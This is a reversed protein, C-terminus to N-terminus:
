KKKAVKMYRVGCANCLTKPGQPGARWVPTVKAGCSTCAIGNPNPNTVGAQNGSTGRKKIVGGCEADHLSAGLRTTTARRSRSPTSGKNLLSSEPLMEAIGINMVPQSTSFYVGEGQGRTENCGDSGESAELMEMTEKMRLTERMASSITNMSELTPSGFELEVFGYSNPYSAGRLNPSSLRSLTMTNIPSMITQMSHTSVLSRWSQTSGATSGAPSSSAEYSLSSSSPQYNLHYHLSDVKPSPAWVKLNNHPILSSLNPTSPSEGAPCSWMCDTDLLEVNISGPLIEEESAPKVLSQSRPLPEKCATPINAAEELSLMGFSKSERSQQLWSHASLPEVPCLDLANPDWQEEWHIGSREIDGLTPTLARSEWCSSHELREALCGGVEEDLISLSSRNFALKNMEAVPENRHIGTLPEERMLCPLGMARYQM